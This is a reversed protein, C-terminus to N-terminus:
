KAGRKYKTRKVEERLENWYKTLSWPNPEMAAIEQARVLIDTRITQAKEKLYKYSTQSIGLRRAMEYASYGKSLEIKGLLDMRNDKVNKGM